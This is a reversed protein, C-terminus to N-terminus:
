PLLRHGCSPKGQACARRGPATIRDFRTRVRRAAGPAFGCDPNLAIRDPSLYETGAIAIAEIEEITQLKEGRIDLVGRGVELKEPLPKLDDTIETDQYAFELNVQDIKADKLYPSM